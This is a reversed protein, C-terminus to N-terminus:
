GRMVLGPVIGYSGDQASGSQVASLDSVSLNHDPFSISDVSLPILYQPM